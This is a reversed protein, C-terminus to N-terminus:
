KKKRCKGNQSAHGPGPEGPPTDGPDDPLPEPGEEMEDGGKSGFGVKGRTSRVLLMKMPCVSIRKSARPQPKQSSLVSTSDPKAHTSEDAFVMVSCLPM